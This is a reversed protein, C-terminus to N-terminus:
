HLANLRETAGEATSWYWGKPDWVRAYTLKKAEGYAQKAEDKRGLKEAAQGKIFYCAGVDNLLGHSDIRKKEEDNVAGTPVM